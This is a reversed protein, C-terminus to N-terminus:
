KNLVDTGSRKERCCAAIAYCVDLSNMTTGLIRRAKGEVIIGVFARALTGAHTGGTPSSSGTVRPPPPGWRPKCDTRDNLVTHTQHSLDSRQGVRRRCCTIYFSSFIIYLIISNYANYGILPLIKINNILNNCYICSTQTSWIADRLILISMCDM